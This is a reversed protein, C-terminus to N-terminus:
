RGRGTTKPWERITPSAAFGVRRGARPNRSTSGGHVNPSVSFARSTLPPISSPTFPGTSTSHTSQITPPAPRSAPLPTTINTAQTPNSISASSRSPTAQANGQLPTQTTQGDTAHANVKIDGPVDVYYDSAISLKEKAAKSLGLQEREKSFRQAIDALLKQPLHAVWVEMRLSSFSAFFDLLVKRLM